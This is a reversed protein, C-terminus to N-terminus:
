EAMSPNPEASMLDGRLEERVVGSAPMLILAPFTSQSLKHSM